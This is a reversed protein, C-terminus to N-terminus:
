ETWYVSAYGSVGVRVMCMRIFLRKDKVHRKANPIVSGADSGVSISASIGSIIGSSSSSSRPGMASYGSETIASIRGAHVAGVSITLAALNM